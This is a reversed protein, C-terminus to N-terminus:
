SERGGVGVLTIRNTKSSSGGPGQDEHDSRITTAACLLWIARGTKDALLCLPKQWPDLNAGLDLRDLHM